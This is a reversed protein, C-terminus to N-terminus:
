RSDKQELIEVVVRKKQRAAVAGMITRMANAIRRGKGVVKGMDEKATSIELLTSGEGRVENVVVQEPNDVIHKVIREMLERM